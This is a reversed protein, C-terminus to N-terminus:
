PQGKGFVSSQDDATSSWDACCFVDPGRLLLMQVVVCRTRKVVFDACCCM